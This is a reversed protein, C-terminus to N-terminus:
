YGARFVLGIGGVIGVVISVALMAHIVRAIIQPNKMITRRQVGETAVTGGVGNKLL